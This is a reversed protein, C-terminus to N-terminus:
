WAGMEFSLRTACFAVMERVIFHPPYVM